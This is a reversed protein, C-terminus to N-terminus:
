KGGYKKILDATEYFGKEEAMFLPTQGNDMPANVLAGHDLLLKALDTKGNHAASHLPTVGQMQKANVDGGGKILLAAIEYNFIACASHLPAVKFDNKAILNPDAGNALLLLVVAVNEFFSALGLPTFGDKSFSNVQMRDRSIIHSVTEREGISVADFLDIENKYYQLISIAENNRCYAAFQILSIGQDTTSEARLPDDNIYRLLAEINNTKISDLIENVDSM